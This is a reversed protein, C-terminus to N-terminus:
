EVSMEALADAFTAKPKGMLYYLSGHTIADCTRAGVAKRLDWLAGSLVLSDAHVEGTIDEPYHANNELTRLYPKKIKAALWEGTQPDDTMSAAFYDSFAENIAGSESEYILEVVANTVAHCYEHYIVSEEKAFSNYTRGDGFGMANELPSYFANDQQTGFHVIVKMPKADLAAFGLGAFFDRAFNALYYANIEDFNSDTPNYDYDDGANPYIIVWDDNVVNFYKGTLRKKEPSLNLYRLPEMTVGCRIPNSIYVTGRPVANALINRNELIKGDAADVTCVFDALPKMSPLEVRYAAVAKGGLPYFVESTRAASRLRLCCNHAAALESARLSTIAAAARPVPEARILGNVAAVAKGAQNVHVSIESGAMKKGGVRRAFLIHVINGTNFIKVVAFGDADPAGFLSINERLFRSAAAAANEGSLSSGRRSYDSPDESFFSSLRGSGDFYARCTGGREANFRAFYDAGAPKSAGQASAGDAFFSLFMLLVSVLASFALKVSSKKM